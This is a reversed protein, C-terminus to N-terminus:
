KGEGLMVVPLNWQILVVCGNDSWVSHESGVPNLVVTGAAYDGSEDSQVGDLVVITELGAHRHRPVSAGPEYALVAASPADAGGRLLWSVRIGPRFPEFDLARWGGSVLAPFFLHKM